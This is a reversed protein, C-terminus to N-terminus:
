PLGTFEIPVGATPPRRPRRTLRLCAKECTVATPPVFAACGLVDLRRRGGADTDLEVALRRDKLPCWVRCAVRRAGGRTMLRKVAAVLGVVVLVGVSMALDIV